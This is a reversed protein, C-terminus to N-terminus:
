ELCFNRFLEGLFNGVILSHVVGGGGGPLYHLNVYPKRNPNETPPLSPHTLTKQPPHIHTHSENLDSTHLLLKELIKPFEERAPPLPFAPSSCVTSIVKPIACWSLLPM